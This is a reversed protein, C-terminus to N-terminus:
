WPSPPKRPSARPMATEPGKLAAETESLEARKPDSRRAGESPLQFANIIMDAPALLVIRNPAPLATTATDPPATTRVFPQPKKAAARVSWATTADFVSVPPPASGVHKARTAPSM